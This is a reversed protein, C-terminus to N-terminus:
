AFIDRVIDDPTAPACRGAEFDAEAERIDSLIEERRREILRRRLIEVLETQEDVSLQEVAELAEDFRM